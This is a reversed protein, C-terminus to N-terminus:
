KKRKRLQAKQEGYCTSSDAVRSTIEVDDLLDKMLQGQQDDMRDLWINLALKIVSSRDLGLMDAYKDLRVLLQEPGRFSFPYDHKKQAM